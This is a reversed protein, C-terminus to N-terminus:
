YLCKFIAAPPHSDLIEALQTAIQEVRRGVVETESTPVPVLSIPALKKLPGMPSQFWAKDM